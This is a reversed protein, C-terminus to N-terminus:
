WRRGKKAMMATEAAPSTNNLKSLNTLSTANQQMTKSVILM